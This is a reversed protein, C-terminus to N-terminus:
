KVVRLVGVRREDDASGHVSKRAAAAGISSSRLFALGVRFRHPGTLGTESAPAVRRRTRLLALPADRLVTRRGAFGGAAGVPDNKSAPQRPRRLILTASVAGQAEECQGRKAALRGHHQHRQEARRFRNGSETEGQGKERGEKECRHHRAVPGAGSRRGYRPELSEQAIQDPRRDPAHTTPGDRVEDGFRLTWLVIGNDRPKLIVARERRNLVLRSVGVMETSRMADRIVCYAEEGIPNDPTLYYPTDYWIWDISEAAVFSQINITRASELAVLELEEDELLVYDDEGRAYGKVENAEDVPQGTEADVYHSQIRNGTRRNLVHFRVKEKESTASMMAVPCTVLSLKMYGKWFPRAAM